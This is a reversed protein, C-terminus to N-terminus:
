AVMLAEITAWTGSYEYLARSYKGKFVLAVGNYDEFVKGSTGTSGDQAVKFKPISEGNVYKEGMVLIKGSNLRIFFGLGCCCAAADVAQLFQTASQDLDEISADIEHEYSVSCGNRSQTFKYEAEDEKISFGVVVPSTAGIRIAVVSYPQKAGAVDAAQTFNLDNPDFVAINSIGGTTPGCARTRPRITACLM